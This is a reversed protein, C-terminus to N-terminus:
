RGVFAKRMGEDEIRLLFQISQRGRLRQRPPLREDDCVELEPVERVVLGGARQRSEAGFGAHRRPAELNAKHEVLLSSSLLEPSQNASDRRGDYEPCIPLRELLLRKLVEERLRDAPEPGDFVM